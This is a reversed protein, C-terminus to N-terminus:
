TSTSHVARVVLNSWDLAKLLIPCRMFIPQIWSPAKKNYVVLYALANTLRDAPHSMCEVELPIDYICKSPTNPWIFSKCHGAPSSNPKNDMGPFEPVMEGVRSRHFSFRFWSGPVPYVFCGACEEVAVSPARFCLSNPDSYPGNAAEKTFYTVFEEAVNPFLIKNFDESKLIM